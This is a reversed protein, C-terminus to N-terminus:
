IVYTFLFWLAALLMLALVIWGWVPFGRTPRDYVKVAPTDASTAPADLSDANTTALGPTTVSPTTVDPTPVGPTAVLPTNVGPALPIVQPPVEGIQDGPLDNDITM